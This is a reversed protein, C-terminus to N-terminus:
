PGGEYSPVGTYNVIQWDFKAKKDKEKLNFLSSVANHMKNELRSYWSSNELAKINEPLNSNILEEVNGKYYKQVDIGNITYIKTRSSISNFRHYFTKEERMM